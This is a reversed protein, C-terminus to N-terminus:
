KKEQRIEKTKRIINSFSEVNLSAGGVLAGDVGDVQLYSKINEANVSGGFLVRIDKSVKAGYLHKIHSRIVKITDLLDDPSCVASVTGGGGTSIAWVPEYAILVHRIHSSTVGSLGGVLQDYIVDNTEGNAREEMTEGICLIPTVKSRIAAATKHGTDEVTEGFIHRRESHGVLGYEAIGRLQAIAVEGTYAGFDKYYFNQAALRFQKYDVQLSLSQLTFISPALIIELGKAPAIKQALKHLFLNSEEMTFNMKWNAVIYTKREEM